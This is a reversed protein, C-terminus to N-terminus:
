LGQIKVRIRIRNLKESEHPNQGMKAFYHADIRILIGVRTFYIFM